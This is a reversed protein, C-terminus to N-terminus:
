YATRSILKEHMQLLLESRSHLPIIVTWHPVNIMNTWARRKIKGIRFLLPRTKM